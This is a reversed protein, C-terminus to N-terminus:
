LTQGNITPDICTGFDINSAQIEDKDAKVPLYLQCNLSMIEEQGQHFLQLLQEVQTQEDNFKVPVPIRAPPKAKDSPIILAQLSHNATSFLGKLLIVEQASPILDVNTDTSVNTSQSFGFPNAHVATSATLIGFLIGWFNQAKM